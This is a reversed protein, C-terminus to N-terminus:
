PCIGRAARAARWRRGGGPDLVLGAIPRLVEGVHERVVVQGRELEGARGARRLLLLELRRRNAVEHQGAFSREREVDRARLRLQGSRELERGGAVRLPSEQELAPRPGRM